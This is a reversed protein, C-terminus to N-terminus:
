EMHEKTRWEMSVGGLGDEFAGKNGVSTNEVQRMHNELISGEFSSMRRLSCMAGFQKLVYM